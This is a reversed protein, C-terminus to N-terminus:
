NVNVTANQNWNNITTAGELAGGISLPLLAEELEPIADVKGSLYDALRERCSRLRLALGGLRLEQVDFGQPKNDTYWLTRFARYFDELRESALAYDDLLAALAEKDGAQYAKRTRSGLAYKVSLLRCLASQSRFIYAHAPSKEAYGALEDALAAYEECVGEKVLPDLYGNFPDSYLMHKSPNAAKQYSKSGTGGVQDPADLRMMADFDEGTADHFRRKIEDMDEIGDHIQKIAFLSPLVAHFSCEKGNDGWMTMFINEVGRERCSRMAPTMSDLTWGNRPTFGCWTWVGGAFWTEGKFKAHSALMNDYMKKDDSYYDWYVQDVGDPVANAIEETIVDDYTHYLDHNALRFYMDSWMMSHFGYKQAIELVRSLHKNLIDFRNQYGHKDLYKGLGLMHAEDMGIHVLNTTFCERLTRFINEILEYTRAEEALFINATDRIPKYPGWRFISALHALTQVCPIVEVGISNCYSVIDKLEEKSYRGRMYGFYPEGDVEYTDETYLQLMNYGFGHLQTIFKKVEEPKMVANRSMDLMVGFRKAM